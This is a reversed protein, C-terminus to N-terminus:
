DQEMYKKIAIFSEESLVHELKCADEAATKESVGLKELLASIVIHREYIGTAIKLGGDTLKIYGSDDITIHGANKLNKMAVSVSPKSYGLERVVDISKVNGKEKSLVYITELYNEASEHNKM